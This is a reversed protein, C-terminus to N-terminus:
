KGQNEKFEKDLIEIAKKERERGDVNNHFWELYSMDINFVERVTRDKYKGFTFIVTEPSFRNEYLEIAKEWPNNYGLIKLAEIFTDLIERTVLSDFLASHAGGIPKYKKIIKKEYEEDILKYRLYQLNIKDEEEFCNKKKLFEAIYMTDVIKFKSNHLVRGIMNLDFDVNHGIVIDNEELSNLRKITKTRSLNKTYAPLKRIGHATMSGISIIRDTKVFDESTYTRGKSLMISGIQIVRDDDDFGTTETDFVIIKKSKNM